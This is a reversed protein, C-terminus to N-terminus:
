PSSSRDSAPLFSDAPIRFLEALAEAEAPEVARCDAEWDAIWIPSVGGLREGLEEISWGHAERLGSLWSGPTQRSRWAVHEPHENVNVWDDGEFRGMGFHAGYGLCVPGVVPQKFRLEVFFGMDQAPAVGGRARRRIFHRFHPFQSSPLDGPEPVMKTHIDVKDVSYPLGRAALESRLQGDLTNKGRTKMFRPPVFPTVSCWRSAPALIFELDKADMLAERMGHGALAVRLDSSQGKTWTRRLRRIAAMAESSFGMPAWLLIHDLHGDENLDVPLIHTHRHGELPSGNSAQGTLVEPAGRGQDALSVLSRHILEAQPLTRAITPLASANGSETAIALLVVDAVSETVRKSRQSSTLIKLQKTRRYQVWRSGPPQSWGHSKWRATDWQMADILDSPFPSELKQRAKIQASTPKKGSVEQAPIKSKRWIDYEEVPTAALATVLEERAPDRPEESEHLKCNVPLLKEEGLVRGEVWSESRGLYGMKAVIESLLTREPEELDVAWRIQLEGEVNLWTDLVLTTKGTNLPMYHRSHALSAEPLHYEPLSSALSGILQRAEQPVDLWGLRTYGCNLFARLIRWPCPPWEVQGENVQHGWPTAHYRGGPFRFAVAIM